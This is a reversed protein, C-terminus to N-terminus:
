RKERVWFKFDYESFNEVENLVFSYARGDTLQNIAQFVAKQAYIMQKKLDQLKKSKHMIRNSFNCKWENDYGEDIYEICNQLESFSVVASEKIGEITDRDLPYVDVDPMEKLGEISKELWSELKAQENETLDENQLGLLIDQLERSKRERNSIIETLTNEKKQSM